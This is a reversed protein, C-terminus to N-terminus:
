PNDTERIVTGQYIEEDNADIIDRSSCVRRLGEGTAYSYIGAETGPTCHSSTFHAFSCRDHTQHRVRHMIARVPTSSGRTLVEMSLGFNVVFHDPSPELAEWRDNRNVELGPETTRLLTLFGDDKHSALGVGAFRPRYHNFTLHYSGQADSAGGTALSWFEPDIDTLSLIARLLQRSYATLQEGAQLIEEPYHTKWFRRELLFQEIQNIREHFGLLPDDFTEATLERFAGYPAIAPGKFFNSAFLDCDRVQFDDPIRLLFVGDRLAAVHTQESPFVLHEDELYAEQLKALTDVPRKDIRKEYVDQYISGRNLQWAVPKPSSSM